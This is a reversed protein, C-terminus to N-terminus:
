FPIDDDEEQVRQGQLWPWLEKIFYADSCEELNINSLDAGVNAALDEVMKIKDPLSAFEFDAEDLEAPEPPGDPTPPGSPAPDANPPTGFDGPPVDIASDLSPSPAPLSAPGFVGATASIAADRLLKKTDPDNYDPAVVCRVVVFPHNFIAKQFTGGVGLMKRIVVCKADTGTNKLANKRKARYDRNTCFEIYEKQEAPTKAKGNYSKGAKAKYQDALDEKLIEADWSADGRFVVPHGYEKRICAVAQYHIFDRTITVPKTNAVDWNAGAASFLRELASAHLAWSGKAGSPEFIDKDEKGASIEVPEVILRHIEPLNYPECLYIIKCGQEKYAELRQLQAANSGPRLQTVNSNPKAM